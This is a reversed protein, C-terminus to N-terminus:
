YDKRPNAGRGCYIVNGNKTHFHMTWEGGYHNDLTWGFVKTGVVRDLRFYKAIKLLARQWNRM